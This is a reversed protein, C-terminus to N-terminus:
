EVYMRGTFYSRLHDHFGWEGVREVTFSWSETSEIPKKPDFERYLQHSPHEDSAPWYQNPRTTSFVVVTGAHIRIARPSFGSDTLVISVSDQSRLDVVASDSSSARYAFLISAGIVLTGALSILAAKYM